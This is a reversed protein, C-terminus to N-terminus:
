DIVKKLYNYDHVKLVDSLEVKSVETIVKYRPNDRFNKAATLVGMKPDTLVM